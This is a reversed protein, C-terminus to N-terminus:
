QAKGSDLEKMKQVMELGTMGPMVYDTIVVDPKIEVYKSLAEAPDNFVYTQLGKNKLGIGALRAVSAEDDVVMAKQGERKDAGIAGFLQTMVFPKQLVSKFVGLDVEDM